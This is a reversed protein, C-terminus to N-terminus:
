KAVAGAAERAKALADEPIAEGLQKAGINALALLEPGLASLLPPINGGYKYTAVAVRGTYAATAGAAVYKALPISEPAADAAVMLTAASVVNIIDRSVENDEFLYRIRDEPLGLAVAAKRVLATLADQALMSTGVKVGDQFGVKLLTGIGDSTPDSTAMSTKETDSTSRQLLSFRKAYWGKGRAAALGNGTLDITDEGVRDRYVAEVIYRGELTFVTGAEGTVDLPAVIDGVQFKSTPAIAARKAMDVVGVKEFRSTYWAGASAAPCLDNKAIFVLWRGPPGIDNPGIPDFYARLVHADNFQMASADFPGTSDICRVLDGPQFPQGDAPYIYRNCDCDREACAENSQNVHTHRVRPHECRACKAFAVSRLFHPCTCEHGGQRSGCPRHDNNTHAGWDHNCRACIEGNAM